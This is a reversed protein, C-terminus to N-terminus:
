HYFGQELEGTECTFSAAEEQAPEIGKRRFRELWAVMDGRLQSAIQPEAASLNRAEMPDERINYLEITQDEEKSELDTILKWKQTRVARRRSGAELYIRDRIKPGQAAMEVLSQGDLTPDDGDDSYYTFNPWQRAGAIEQITPFLDVHQVYGEVVKGKPLVPHKMIIPVHVTHDYVTGHAWVGNQGLGEGHDGTLIILTDEYLGLDKLAELVQEIQTDVYRTAGDYLDISVIKETENYYPRIFKQEGEVMSDVTGWGPVYEYGAEATKVMLDNRDGSQHSFWTRYPEPQNYPTHPEWYHTFLFFPSRRDAYSELWDITWDTVLESSVRGTNGIPQQGVNIYFNYGRAFHKPHARWSMMNDVGVTTYGNQLMVEALTPIRDDLQEANPMRFPTIYYGTHAAVKGTIMCTYSPGTAIASAFSDKFIVGEAALQDIAPTTDRFYGYCGVHDARLTDITMFVVNSQREM